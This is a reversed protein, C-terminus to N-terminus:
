LQQPWEVGFWNWTSRLREWTLHRCADFCWLLFCFLAALWQHSGDFVLVKGAHIGMGVFFHCRFCIRNHLYGLCSLSWLMGSSALLSLWTMPVVERKPRLVWISFGSLKRCSLVSDLVMAHKVVGLFHLFWAMWRGLQHSGTLCGSIPWSRRAQVVNRAPVWCSFAFSLADLHPFYVNLDSTVFGIDRPRPNARSMFLWSCWLDTVLVCWFHLSRIWLSFPRTNGKIRSGILLIANCSEFVLHM